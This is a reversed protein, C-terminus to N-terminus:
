VSLQPSGYTTTILIYNIAGCPICSYNIYVADKILEVMVSEANYEIITGERVKEDLFSQTANKILALTSKTGKGGVFNNELKEVLGSSLEDSVMRMSIERFNPNNDSQYTTLGQAFRYGKTASNRVFEIATVGSLILSNVQDHTLKTAVGAISVTDMTIPDGTEKGALRGAVLCASFCGDLEEVESSLVAKNIAPYAVIARSSNLNVALAIADEPVAERDLGYVGMMLSRESQSQQNVFEDCLNQVEARIEDNTTLPVLIQVGEGILLNLANEVAKVSMEGDAGGSLKTFNPSAVVEGVKDVVILNSNRTQYKFDAELATLTVGNEDLATEALDDLGDAPINKNGVNKLSAKIGEIARLSAVVKNIDNHEEKLDFKHVVSGVSLTMMGDAVALMADEAGEYKIDMINGINNFVEVTNDPYYYATLNFDNDDGEEVKIAIKNAFEGFGVSHLEIGGITAKAQLCGDVARVVMIETAGVGDDSPNWCLACGKLLDGGRLVAQAETTSTFSLLKNPEGGLSTGILAVIRGEGGSVGYSSLASADIKTHASPHIIRKGNFTVGANIAM